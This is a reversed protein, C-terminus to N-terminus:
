INEIDVCIVKAKLLKGHGPRVKYVMRQRQVTTKDEFMQSVVEISVHQHDGYVDKVEVSDAELAAEIKSRMSVMLEASIQQQQPSIPEKPSEDFVGGPGAASRALMRSTVKCCASPGANLFQAPFSRCAGAQLTVMSRCTMHQRANRSCVFNPYFTVCMVLCDEMIDASLELRDCHNKRGTFTCVVGM